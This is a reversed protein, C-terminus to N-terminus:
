VTALPFRVTFRSGGEPRNEVDVTGGQRVVLAHVISLGLGSGEGGHGPAHPFRRFPRALMESPLGAGADSVQLVVGASTAEVAVGLWGGDGAHRLANEVLNFLVQRLRDPDANVLAERPTPPVQLDLVVGHEAIRSAHSVLAERVLEALDQPVMKLSLQGAEAMSLTHLDGVLRGLYEVQELLARSEAADAEIVGDCIAHLRARLVTLPTRLEHSISAATARRERAMDELADTMQNFHGVMEAMEGKYRGPRARVTFDGMAVRTAAEAMSAVPQTVLRSVWFGVALGFPLCVVLGVVLSWKEGFLLDGRWYQGYIAMAKPSDEQDNDNLEDLEHQVSSPLSRYFDRYQIESFVAVSAALLGMTALLTGAIYLGFRVWIRDLISGQM